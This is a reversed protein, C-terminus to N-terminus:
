AWVKMCESLVFCVKNLCDKTMNDAESRAIENILDRLSNVQEESVKRDIELYFELIFMQVYIRVIKVPRQIAVPCIKLFM